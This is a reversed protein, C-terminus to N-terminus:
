PLSTNTLSGSVSGFFLQNFLRILYSFLQTYCYPGFVFSTRELRYGIPSGTPLWLLFRGM